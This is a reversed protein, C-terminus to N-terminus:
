GLQLAAGCVPCYAVTAISNVAVDCAQCTGQTGVGPQTVYRADPWAVLAIDAETSQAREPRGEAWVTAEALVMTTRMDGTETFDQHRPLVRSLVYILARPDLAALQEALADYPHPASM